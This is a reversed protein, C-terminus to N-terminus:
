ADQAEEELRMQGLAELCPPCIYSDSERGYYGRVFGQGVRRCRHCRHPEAPEAAPSRRVVPLLPKAKDRRAM